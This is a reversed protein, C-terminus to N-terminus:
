TKKGDISCQHFDTGTPTRCSLEDGSIAANEDYPYYVAVPTEGGKLDGKFEAMGDSSIKSFSFPSNVTGQDGYVGIKDGNVWVVQNEEDVATRTNESTEIRAKLTHNGNVQNFWETSEERYCAVLLFALALIGYLIKKM